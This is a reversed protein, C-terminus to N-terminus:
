ELIGQSLKARIEARLMYENINPMRLCDNAKLKTRSMVAAKSLSFYLVAKKQKRNANVM